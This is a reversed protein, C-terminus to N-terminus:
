LPKPALVWTTPKSTAILLDLIPQCRLSELV